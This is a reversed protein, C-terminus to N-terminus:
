TAPVPAQPRQEPVPPPTLRAAAAVAPLAVVCIGVAILIVSPLGHGSV